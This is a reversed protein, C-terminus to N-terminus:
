LDPCEPYFRKLFQLIKSILQKTTLILFSKLTRKCLQVIKDLMKLEGAPDGDQDICGFDLWLYCGEFGEALQKMILEVGEILLRFKSGKANDPHPKGDWGEAGNWGRMWCHSVFVVLHTEFVNMSVLEPVTKTLDKNDPYRPFGGFAKVDKFDIFRICSLDPLNPNNDLVSGTAGM